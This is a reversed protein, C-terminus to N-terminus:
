DSQSGLKRRLEGFMDWRKTLHYVNNTRDNRIPANYDEKLTDIYRKATRASISLKETITHISLYQNDQFLIGLKFLSLQARIAMLDEKFHPVIPRSLSIKEQNTRKALRKSRTIDLADPYLIIL